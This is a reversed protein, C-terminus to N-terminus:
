ITWSYHITIAKLALVDVGFSKSNKDLAMKTFQRKGIIKVQSTTPLTEVIVYLKRTLKELEAFEVNANHFSLFPMGLVVEISTNALLFTKEFFQVSELSNKLM